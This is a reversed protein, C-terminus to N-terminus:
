PMNTITRSHHFIGEYESPLAKSLGVLKRGRFYSIENGNEPPITKSLPQPCWYRNSVNVPGNYSIRCPLVNAKVTPCDGSRDISVITM